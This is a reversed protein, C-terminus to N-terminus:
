CYNEMTGGYEIPLNDDDILEKLKAQWDSGCM